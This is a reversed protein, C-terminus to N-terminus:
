IHEKEVQLGHLTPSVHLYQMTPNDRCLVTRTAATRSLLAALRLGKVEAPMGITGALSEMSARVSDHYAQVTLPSEGRHVRYRNLGVYPHHNLIYFGARNNGSMAIVNQHYPYLEDVTGLIQDPTCAAIQDQLQKAAGVIRRQQKYIDTEKLDYRSVLSRFTDSTIDSSNIIEAAVLGMGEIFRCARHAGAVTARQLDSDYHLGEDLTYVRDRSYATLALSSDFGQGVAGGATQVMVKLRQREEDRPDICGVIRRHDSTLTFGQYSRPDM